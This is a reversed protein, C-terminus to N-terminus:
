LCFGTHGICFNSCSSSHKICFSSTTICWGGGAVDELEEDSITVAGRHEPLRFVMLAEGNSFRLPVEPPLKMGSAQEVAAHPDRLALSRFELDDAARDMVKELADDWSQSNWQTM